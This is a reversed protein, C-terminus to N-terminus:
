SRKQFGNAIFNYEYTHGPYRSVGETVFQTRTIQRDWLRYMLLQFWEKDAPKITMKNYNPDNRTSLAVETMVPKFKAMKADTPAQYVQQPAVSSTNTCATFSLAAILAIFIRKKM